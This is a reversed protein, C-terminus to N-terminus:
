RLATAVASGGDALDFPTKRAPTRSTQAKPNTSGSERAEQAIRLVTGV